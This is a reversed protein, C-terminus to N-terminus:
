CGRKSREEQIVRVVEGDTERKQLSCPRSPPLRPVGDQDTLVAGKETMIEHKVSAPADKPIYFPNEPIRM